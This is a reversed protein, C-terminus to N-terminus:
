SVVVMKIAVHILDRLTPGWRFAAYMLVAAIPLFMWVPLLYRGAGGRPAKEKETSM